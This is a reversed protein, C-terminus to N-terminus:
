PQYPSAEKEEEIIGDELIESKLESVILEEKQKETLKEEPAASSESETIAQEGESIIIIEDQTMLAVEGKIVEVLIAEAEENVLAKVAEGKELAFSTGVSSVKVRGNSNESAKISVYGNEQIELNVWAKEDLAVEIGNVEIEAKGEVVKIWTGAPLDGIETGKKIIQPKEGPKTISITGTFGKVTIGAFCIGTGLVVYLVALGIVTMRIRNIM